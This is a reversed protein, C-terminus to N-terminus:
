PNSGPRRRLVLEAVNAPRYGGALLSVLYGVGLVLVQGILGILLPNWEYNFGLDILRTSRGTLLAWATFVVCTAIGWYCGTRTARKSLFGLLFLGLTGGSLIAAITVAREMIPQAGEGPILWLAILCAIIGAAVVCSKGFLLKTRDSLGPLFNGAYDTTLVTSVSNLDSSISSMSAALVAALIVGVLGAPLYNVIFYPVISEPNEPLPGGALTFYGFLCAGIFMFAAYIPVCAYANWLAGQTAERNTRAILYKQVMHQDSVYRRAWNVMYAALFLWQSTTETNWLIAPSIEFSGLHFKGADYAAAVVAGPPGVEPAFILRAIIVVAGGILIVGQIVDTWVVAEIGGICTYAVTFLGLVLIVTQLDWGTMAHLAIGTTLLTVGLDFIRDALFGLSSYVRGGIGFRQGIYEYASMRVRDRYFPVIWIAVPILVLVLTLNGLLLIMGKQFVTAPHGILTGSSILTAMLTFAVAWAPISRNAVFYEETSKQRRAVRLGIVAIVVFYLALVLYDPLQLTM